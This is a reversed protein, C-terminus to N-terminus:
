TLEVHRQVRWQVGAFVPLAGLDRLSQVAFRHARAQRHGSIGTILVLLVVATDPDCVGLASSPSLETM